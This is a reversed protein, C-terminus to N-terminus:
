ITLYKGGDFFKGTINKFRTNIINYGTHPKDDLFLEKLEEDKLIERSNFKKYYSFDDIDRVLVVIKFTKIGLDWMAFWRSQGPEVKWINNAFMGICPNIQGKSKISEFIDDGWSEKWYKFVHSFHERVNKLRVDDKSVAPPRFEILPMEKFYFIKCNHFKKPKENMGPLVIKKINM